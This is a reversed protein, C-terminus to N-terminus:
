AYLIQDALQASTFNEIFVAGSYSLATTSVLVGGNYDATIIEAATMGIMYLSDYSTGSESFDLISDYVGAQFESFSFAFTDYGEDGFLTDNGSGGLIFDNGYGAYIVDNGLGGQLVNAAENALIIDNFDSGVVGEIAFADETLGYGDNAVQGRTLYLGVSAAGPATLFSITDYGSGGDYYDRGAGGDLFDNDAGGYLQDSGSGGFLNDYGAGGYLVDHDADGAIFDHDDQGYLQDNGDGGFLSDNGFGGDLLTAGTKGTFAITGM